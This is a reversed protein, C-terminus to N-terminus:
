KEKTHKKQKFKPMISEVADGFIMIMIICPILIIVLLLLLFILIWELTTM